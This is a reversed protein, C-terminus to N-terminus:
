RRSQRAFRKAQERMQQPTQNANNTIADLEQEGPGLRAAAERLRTSLHELRRMEATHQGPTGELTGIRREVYHLPTNGQTDQRRAAAARQGVPTREFIQDITENSFTGRSLGIKHFANQQHTSSPTAPNPAPSTSDLSRTLADSDGRELAQRLDHNAAGQPDRSRGPFFSALRRSLRSGEITGPDTSSGAVASAGGGGGYGPPPTLPVPESTIEGGEPHGEQLNLRSPATGRSLSAPLPPVPPVDASTQRGPLSIRSASASTRLSAASGQSRLAGLTARSTQRSLARRLTSTSPRPRLAPDNAPDETPTAEHDGYAPPRPGQRARQQRDLARQRQTPTLNDGLQSSDGPAHFSPPQERVDGLSPDVADGRSAFWEDMSQLAQEHASVAPTTDAEVPTHAEEEQQPEPPNEALHELDSGGPGNVGSM